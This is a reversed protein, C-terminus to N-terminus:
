YLGSASEQLNQLGNMSCLSFVSFMSVKNVYFDGGGEWTVEISQILDRM